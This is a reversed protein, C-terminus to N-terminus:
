DHTKAQGDGLWPAEIAAYAKADIQKLGYTTPPADSEISAQVEKLPVSGASVIKCSTLYEWSPLDGYDYVVDTPLIRRREGSVYGACIIGKTPQKLPVGPTRVGNQVHTAIPDPPTAEYFLVKDGIVVKDDRADLKRRYLHWPLDDNIPHAWHMTIWYNM